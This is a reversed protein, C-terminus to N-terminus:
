PKVHWCILDHLLLLCFATGALREEFFASDTDSNEMLNVGVDKVSTITLKQRKLIIEVAGITAKRTAQELLHSSGPLSCCVSTELISKWVCTGFWVIGSGYTTDMGPRPGVILQVPSTNFTKITWRDKHAPFGDKGIGLLVLGRNALAKEISDLFLKGQHNTYVKFSRVPTENTEADM